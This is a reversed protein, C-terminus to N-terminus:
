PSADTVLMSEAKWVVGRFVVATSYSASITPILYSSQLEAERDKQRLEQVIDMMEAFTPDDDFAGVTKRWDKGSAREVIQRKLAALEQEVATLCQEFDAVSM